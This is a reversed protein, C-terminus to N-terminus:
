ASSVPPHKLGAEVKVLATISRDLFEDVVAPHGHRHAHLADGLLKRYHNVERLASCRQKEYDDVMHAHVFYDVDPPKIATM